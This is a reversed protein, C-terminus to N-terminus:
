GFSPLDVFSSLLESHPNMQDMHFEGIAMTRGEFYHEDVTQGHGSGATDTDTTDSMLM